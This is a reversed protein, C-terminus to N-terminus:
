KTPRSILVGIYAGLGYGLVLGPAYRLDTVALRIGVISLAGCGAAAVATLGARGSSALLVWSTGVLEYAVGIAFALFLLTVITRQAKETLGLTRTTGPPQNTSGM